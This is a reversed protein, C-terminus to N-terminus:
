RAKDAAESLAANSPRADEFKRRQTENMPLVHCQLEDLVAEFIRNYEHTPLEPLKSRVNCMIHDTLEGATTDPTKM